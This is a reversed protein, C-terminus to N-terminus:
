RGTTSSSRSRVQSAKGGDVLVVHKKVLANWAAHGHDFQALVAGWPATAFLITALLRTM